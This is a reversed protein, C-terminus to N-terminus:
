AASPSTGCYTEYSGPEGLHTVGSGPQDRRREIENRWALHWLQWQRPLYWEDPHGRQWMLETLAVWRPDDEDLTARAQGLASTEIEGRNFLSVDVHHAWGPMWVDLVLVLASVIESTGHDEHLEVVTV